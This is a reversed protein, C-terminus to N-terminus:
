HILGANEAKAAWKPMFAGSDGPISQDPWANIESMM